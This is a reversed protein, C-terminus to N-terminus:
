STRGCYTFGDRTAIAALQERLKRGSATISTVDKYNGAKADTGTAAADNALQEMGTLLKQWDSALSAPAELARLRVIAHHEDVAVPPAVRALVQLTKSTSSAVNQVASNAATREVSVQKCIPDAQAVLKAKSTNSSSGNSSSGCGAAAIALVLAVPVLRLKRPM